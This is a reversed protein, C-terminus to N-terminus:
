RHAYRLPLTASTWLVVVLAPHPNSDRRAGLDFWDCLARHIFFVSVLVDAGIARIGARAAHESKGFKDSYAVAFHASKDAM